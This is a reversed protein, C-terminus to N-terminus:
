FFYIKLLYLFEKRRFINIGSFFFTLPVLFSILGVSQFFLDSTYSGQFGLFNNIETNEPFIFNPDDPSYSVLSLLLLIGIISIFIGSIEILRKVIFILVTNAIKKIDMNSSDFIGSQIM